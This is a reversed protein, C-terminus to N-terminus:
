QQVKRAFGICNMGNINTLDYMLIGDAADQKLKLARDIEAQDEVASQIKSSIPFGLSDLEKQTVENENVVGNNYIRISNQTLDFMRYMGSKGPESIAVLAQGPVMFMRGMPVLLIHSDLGNSDIRNIPDQLSYSYLNTDGGDFLIPDKSIWRGSEPDYARAGFRVLGTDRDYIGGAFGFPQFGPNSDSLVQGFEDYKILQAYAGTNVDVVVRVSGISDSIIRYVSGNKIMYDPVNSKSAYIFRSVLNSNGDLEAAINTQNQYVFAQSLLGNVKKGVRRNKADVLYTMTKGAVNAQKLNGFVDYVFLKTTSDASNAVSVLDGNNNYSYTKTGYSTLRDQNDYVDSFIQGRISASTRNGNDDYEYHGVAAGNKNVDTLRGLNDYSYNIM